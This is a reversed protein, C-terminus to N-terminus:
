QTLWYRQEQESLIDYRFKIFFRITWQNEFNCIKNWYKSHLFYLVLFFGSVYAEPKKLPTKTGLM